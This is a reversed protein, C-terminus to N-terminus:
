GMSESMTGAEQGLPYRRSYEDILQIGKLTSIGRFLTNIIEMFAQKESMGEPLPLREPYKLSSVSAYFLRITLELNIKELFIGQEIGCELMQRLGDESRRGGAQKLREFIAPYFKKLNGTMRNQVTSRNMVEKLVMYMAELPDHAQAAIISHRQQEQELIALMSQYLLEEKDGFLEYLTRKSVSLERAIDDMRVAKIGQQMFMRAAQDVIREKPTM